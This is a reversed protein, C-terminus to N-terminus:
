KKGKKSGKGPGKAKYKKRARSECAARKKKAKYKKRCAKLATALRQAQTSQAPKKTMTTGLVVQRGINGSGSFTASTPAGFPQQSTSTPNCSEAKKCTELPPPPPAKSPICPSTPECVRADYVDYSSDIDQGVLREATLFFVDNGNGSADLFASEQASKGSSILAVCGGERHCGGVGEPEYQYVDEVGQGNPQRNTDQPVLADASNFFLRGSDSLYRSQYRAVIGEFPTWGPISGALWRGTWVGTAAIDVLVGKGENAQESDLMGDPPAGSPNCSACVLRGGSRVDYLFVEEDAAGSNVDHNNYGTLSRESMFALYEGNPSVRATLGSLDVVNPSGETFAGWDAADSNSVQAIFRPEEWTKSEGNYREVYLNCAEGPQAEEPKARLLSCSGSAAGSALVGNAVFYVYCGEKSGEDCGHESMGIVSGQVQAREHSTHDLRLETGTLDTLKGTNVDFEYLDAWGHEQETREGRAELELITIATSDKTLPRTDTFFVKSGDSSAAQFRVGGEEPEGGPEGGQVADVQVTKGKGNSPERMYLAEEKDTWFVRAGDDSIAHRASGSGFGYGLTPSSAPNGEPLVSVLQLQEPRAKEKTWEYLNEESGVLSSTLAVGQRATLVVHSLDPTASLFELKHGFETKEPVDAFGPKGTVLPTYCTQPTPTATCSGEDQRLYMTKESAEGSLPPESRPTIGYPEVLSLSLDPNFFRYESSTITVGQPLEHPTEVDQTSWRGERPERRSIVSAVVSSRNGEPNSVIPARAIYTIKSGDQSAQIVGGSVAIREFSGGFKDAPSVLEWARNDPLLGVATPLTTFSSLTADANEGKGHGNEAVVRFHYTTGPRLSMVTVGVTEAGFGTAARAEGKSNKFTLVQPASPVTTCPSPEGTCPVTGYQFFYKTEAGHSDIQASLETSTPTIDQSSVSDVTPPGAKEPAFVDVKGEHSDAVYVGGTTSDLAVGSGEKLQESGFRQILSGSPSLEAVSTVNDIYVDGREVVQENESALDVAVATTKESDVAETVAEGSGSLKRTVSIAPEERCEGNQFLFHNVYFSEDQPGVAFGATAACEGGGEVFGPEIKSVFTNQPAFNTFRDIVGEHAVWLSGNADVAVGHIEGLVESSEKGAKAEKLKFVLKGEPNFKYIVAKEGEKEAAGAVYVDGTSPSTPSNDVAIGEPSFAKLQSLCKGEPGFVDVQNNTRDAVYVDGSSENVAVGGPNALKCVGEKVITTGEFVHGRAPLALAPASWLMLGGALSCFAAVSRGVRRAFACGLEQKIGHGM